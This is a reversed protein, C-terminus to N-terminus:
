GIPPDMKALHSVTLFGVLSKAGWFHQVDMMIKIRRIMRTKGVVASDRQDLPKGMHSATIALDVGM